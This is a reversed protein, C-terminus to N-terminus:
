LGLVQYGLVSKMVESDTLDDFMTFNILEKFPLDSDAALLDRTHLHDRTDLTDRADHADRSDRSDLIDFIDLIEHKILWFKIMNGGDLDIRLCEAVLIDLAFTL